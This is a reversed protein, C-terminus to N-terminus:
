AIFAKIEAKEAVAAALFPFALRHGEGGDPMLFGARHYPLLPMFGGKLLGIQVGMQM